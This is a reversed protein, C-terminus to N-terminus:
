HMSNFFFFFFLFSFLSATYSRFTHLCTWLPPAAPGDRELRDCRRGLGARGGAGRPSTEKRSPADEGELEERGEWGGTKRESELHPNESSLLCRLLPLPCAKWRSALQPEQLIPTPSPAGRAAAPHTRKPQLELM